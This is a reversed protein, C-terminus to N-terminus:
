ITKPCCSKLLKRILKQSMSPWGCLRQRRLAPFCLIERFRAFNQFPMWRNQRKMRARTMGFCAHGYCRDPAILYPPGMCIARCASQELSQFRPPFRPAFAQWPRKVPWQGTQRTKNAGVQIRTSLVMAPRLPDSSRDM